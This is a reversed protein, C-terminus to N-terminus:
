GTTTTIVMTVSSVAKMMMMGRVSSGTTQAVGRGNGHGVGGVGSLKVRRVREAGNRRRRRRMRGSNIM